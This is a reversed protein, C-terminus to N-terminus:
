KKSKKEKKEAAKKDITDGVEGFEDAMEAMAGFMTKFMQGTGMSKGDEQVQKQIKEVKSGMKDFLEENDFMDGFLGTAEKLEDKELKNGLRGAMNGIFSKTTGEGEDSSDETSEKADELRSEFIAIEKQIKTYDRSEPDLCFRFVRLLNLILEDRFQYEYRSKIMAVKNPNKEKEIASELETRIEDAKIYAIGLRLIVKKKAAEPKEHGLHLVIPNDFIWSCTESSRLIESKYQNYIELYYKKHIVFKYNAHNLSDIYSQTQNGIIDKTKGGGPKGDKKTHDHIEKVLGALSKLTKRQQNVLKEEEDTSSSSESKKEKKKKEEAM